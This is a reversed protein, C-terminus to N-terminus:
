YFILLLLVLSNNISHLIMPAFVSGTHIRAYCLGLSVAFMAVTDILNYQFHLVSFVLSSMISTAIDLQRTNKTFNVFIDQGLRWFLGRCILEEYVPASIMVMLAFLWTPTDHGLLQAADLSPKPSLAQSMLNATLSALVVVALFVGLCHWFRRGDMPMLALYQQWIRRAEGHGYTSLMRFYQWFVILWVLCISTLIVSMVLLTHDTISHYPTLNALWRLLTLWGNQLTFMAAVVMVILMIAIALPYRPLHSKASHM